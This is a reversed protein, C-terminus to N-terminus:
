SDTPHTKFTNCISADRVGFICGNRNLFWCLFTSSDFSFRITSFTAGRVINWCFHATPVAVLKKFNSGSGRSSHSASVEVALVAVKEFNRFRKGCNQQEAVAVRGSRYQLVM